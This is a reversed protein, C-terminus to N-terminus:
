SVEQEKEPEPEAEMIDQLLQHASKRIYFVRHIALLLFMVPLLLLTNSNYVAALIGTLCILIIDTAHYITYDLRLIINHGQTLLEFKGENFSYAAELRSVPRPGPADFIVTHKTKKIVTYNYQTVIYAFYDSFDAPPLDNLVISQEICYNFELLPNM